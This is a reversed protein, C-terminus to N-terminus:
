LQLRLTPKKTLEGGMREKFLILSDQPKGQISAIGLDFYKLGQSRYFDVMGHILLVMPSQNRFMPSTGPLYYYAIEDSVRVCICLSSIKGDRFIGFIDYGGTEMSLRNLLDFEINIKLGQAMRCVDLFKYATHLESSDMKKFSFGDQRLNALKREQMKHIRNEWGNDLTIHQNVDEYLIEFGANTLEEISPFNTYIASPHKVELETIAENRLIETVKELRYPFTKLSKSDKFFFSGFPSKPISIAKGSENIAYFCLNEDDLQILNQHDQNRIYSDNYYIM